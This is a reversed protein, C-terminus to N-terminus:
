SDRKRCHENQMQENRARTSKITFTKAQKSFFFFKTSGVSNSRRPPKSTAMELSLSRIFLASCKKLSPSQSAFLLLACYILKVSSRFHHQEKQSAAALGTHALRVEEM